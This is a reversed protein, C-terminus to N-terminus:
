EIEKKITKEFLYEVLSRSVENSGFRDEAIDVILDEDENDVFNLQYGNIELFVDLCILATRKNANHFAHAKTIGWVLAAAKEIVSPYLEFDGFGADMKNVASELSGLDKVGTTEKPAFQAVIEHLGIVDQVSLRIIM